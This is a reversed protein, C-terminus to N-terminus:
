ADQQTMRESSLQKRRRGGLPQRRERAATGVLAQGPSVAVAYAARTNLNRINATFFGIFRLATTEGLDAVMAPVVLTAPAPHEITTLAGGTNNGPDDRAAETDAM